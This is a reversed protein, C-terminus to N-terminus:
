HSQQGGTEQSRYRVLRALAESVMLDPAVKPYIGGNAAVLGAIRGHEARSAASNWKGLYIDKRKGNALRVTTVALNRAKHRCYAPTSSPLRPM